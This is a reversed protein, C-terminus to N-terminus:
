YSVISLGYDHAKTSGNGLQGQDDNGWCVVNNVITGACAHAPGAAVELVATLDPITTPSNVSTKTPDPPLAFLETADGWCHVLHDATVACATRGRADLAIVASLGPVTTPVTKYSDLTDTGIGLQGHANDGWCAVKQAALLACTHSSGARVAEVGLLDPIPTPTPKHNDPGFTGDGLQGFGDAGWCSLTGGLRVACAHAGGISVLKADFLANVPQPLAQCPLTVPIPNGIEDPDLYPGCDPSAFGLWEAADNRGWCRVSGDTLVACANSGSVSLDVAKELGTVEVPSPEFYQDMATGNGLQGYAGAGWCVIKGSGALLACTTDGGARLAQVGGLGPVIAPTTRHHDKGSLGDGLQGRAGAGWCAVSGDAVLACSHSKGVAVHLAVLPMLTIAGGHGGSGGLGTFHGGQGTGAAGGGSGSTTGSSSSADAGCASGALAAALMAGLAGHLSHRRAARTM